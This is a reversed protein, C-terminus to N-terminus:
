PHLVPPSQLHTFIGDDTIAPVGGTPEVFYWSSQSCSLSQFGVFCKCLGQKYDCIGRNACDVHCLNGETGNVRNSREGNDSRQNRYSCDTENVATTPDDGSPCHRLSCDPGFWESEQSEGPGFGVPWSSDCYCGFIKDADWGTSTRGDSTINVDYVTYSSTLPFTNYIKALNKMSLCKGHGSCDNPCPMRECAPGAFNLTCKCTGTTRDCIGRSSCETLAHAQQNGTPVDAWSKGAPCVRASCDPARYLTIDTTAGWGAYCSCVNDNCQGNGNCYSLDLCSAITFPPQLQALFIVILISLSINSYYKMTITQISSSYQARKIKQTTVAKSGKSSTTALFHTKFSFPPNLLSIKAPSIDQSSKLFWDHRLSSDTGEFRFLFSKRM